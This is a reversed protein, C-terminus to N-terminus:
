VILSSLVLDKHEPLFGVEVRGQAEADGEYGGPVRADIDSVVRGRCNRKKKKLLSKDRGGADTGLARSDEQHVVARGGSGLMERSGGQTCFGGGMGQAAEMSGLLQGGVEKCGRPAKERSGKPLNLLEKGFIQTKIVRALSWGAQGAGGAGLAGLM